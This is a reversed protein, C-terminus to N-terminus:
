LFSEFVDDRSRARKQKVSGPLFDDSLQIDSAGIIKEFKKLTSKHIIHGGKIAVIEGKQIPRVAFLGRGAITSKKGRAAKPSIYSSVLM